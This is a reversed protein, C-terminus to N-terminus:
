VRLNQTVAQANNAAIGMGGVVDEARLNGKMVAQAGPSNRIIDKIAAKQTEPQTMARQIDIERKFDKPNINFSLALQQIIPFADFSAGNAKALQAAGQLFELLEKRKFPRFDLDTTLKMKFDPNKSLSNNNIAAYLQEGEPGEARIVRTRDLFQLNRNHVKYLMNKLMTGIQSRVLAKLRRSAESQIIQSETATLNQSIGQLTSTAGSQRRMAERDTEELQKAYPIGELPPRLPDLGATNDMELVKYAEWVLRGGDSKLGCDASMKWMNYLAAYLNDNIYNRRDNIEKQQRFNIEVIGIGHPENDAEIWKATLFPDEGEQYPIIEVERLIAGNDAVVVRWMFDEEQTDLYGFYEHYKLMKEKSESPLGAISRRATETDNYPSSNAIAKDVNQWLGAKEMRKAQAIPIIYTRARWEDGGESFSFEHPRIYQFDWCDYKPFRTWIGGQNKWGYKLVWPIEVPAFGDRVLGRIFPFFKRQLEVTECQDSIVSKTLFAKIADDYGQPYVDFFSADSTDSFVMEFVATALAEVETFIEPIFTNSKGVSRAEPQCRYMKYWDNTNKFYGAHDSQHNRIKELVENATEDAM